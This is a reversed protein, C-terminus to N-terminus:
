SKYGTIGGDRRNQSLSRKHKLLSKKYKRRAFKMSNFEYSLSYLNCRYIWTQGYYNFFRDCEGSLTNTLPISHGGKRKSSSLGNPEHLIISRDTLEFSIGPEILCNNLNLEVGAKIFRYAHKAQVLQLSEVESSALHRRVTRDSINLEAAVAVQSVGFPIFGKSVFARKAGVHLLFPINTAGRVPKHSATKKGRQVVDSAVPMTFVKSESKLLSKRAAYRSQEQLQQVTIATAIERCNELVEGLPLVAVAGWKKIGLTRCVNFLGGLRIRLRDGECQYKYIAGAERAERLWQYLTSGACNLIQKTEQFSIRVLGSFYIQPSGDSRRWGIMDIARLYYWLRVWPFRMLQSHTKVEISLIDINKTCISEKKQHNHSLSEM